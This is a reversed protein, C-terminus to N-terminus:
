NLDVSIGSRRVSSEPSLPRWEVGRRVRLGAHRRMGMM